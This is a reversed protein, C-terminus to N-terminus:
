YPGQSFPDLESWNLIDNNAQEDQIIEGQDNIAAANEGYAEAVLYDENESIIPNGEEDLLAYDLVNTSLNAQIQDIIPIGTDIIENSYEYLECTLDYTPLTGLQYFFPKYNVYKIQFLKVNLPFFILDGENPREQDLMSGVEESWIRKAVTFTVQDRIELGFKSMFVGDGEFGDVSKVYLALPVAQTYASSADEGLLPDYAVITRPLYYMEQGYISISEIILDELLDQESQNNYQDFYLNTGYSPLQQLTM